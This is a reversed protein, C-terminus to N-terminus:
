ALSGSRFVPSTAKSLHASIARFMLIYMYMCLPPPPSGVLEISLEVVPVSQFRLRGFRCRFRVPFRRALVSDPVPVLSESSSGGCWFGVRCRFRVPRIFDPPIFLVPRSVFVHSYDALASLHPFANDYCFGRNSCCPM